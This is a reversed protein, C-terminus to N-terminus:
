GARMRSLRRPVLADLEQPYARLLALVVLYVAGAILSHVLAGLGPIALTAAAIALALAVSPVIRLSSLVRPHRRAVVAGCALAACFEGCATAIAAGHAGDAPILVALLVVIGILALLNVTLIQRFLAMSLMGNAWVISVFTAGLGIAQISLVGAAEKFESGGLVEMIFPAGIAITLAAGAGVILAVQFVKGIAYAFRDDDNGASRAFIPLATGALIGPVLTLFDIVRYSAGFLGEEHHDALQSVMVIAVRFYLIAAAIGAAYPLVRVLLPRWAAWSFRPRLSRDHRVLRAVLVLVVIGVPISLSLFALLGAGALFLVAMGAATLVQRLLELGALTGVRMRVQLMLGYNDGATQAVLGAGALAVGAVMVPPYGVAVIGLAIALGAVTLTLRLGLLNAYLTARGDDNLKASDRLGLANLGLDSIGGVIAVISVATIYRGVDAVGLQRFLLAAAAASALSGAGYALVRLAGGRVAAPGAASTDLVDVPEVEGVAAATAALDTEQSDSEAPAM